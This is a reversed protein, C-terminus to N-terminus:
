QLLDSVTARSIERLEDVIVQLRNAAERTHQMQNAFRSTISSPPVEPELSGTHELRGPDSGEGPQRLAFRKWAELHELTEDFYEQFRNLGKSILAFLSSIGDAIGAVQIGASAIHESGNLAAQLQHIEALSTELDKNRTRLERELLGRLAETQKRGSIDRVVCVVTGASLPSITGDFWVKRGNIRLSFELKERRHQELSLRIHQVILDATLVPLVDRVHQGVLEHAKDFIMSPNTEIINLCRGEGDFVLILDDLAHFLSRLDSISALLEQSSLELSRELMNRDADSQEYVANIASVFSACQLPIPHSEGFYRELQRRLLSHM